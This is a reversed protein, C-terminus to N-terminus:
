IDHYRAESVLKIRNRRPDEYRGRGYAHPQLDHDALAAAASLGSLAQIHSAGLRSGPYIYTTRKRNQHAEDTERRSSGLLAGETNPACAEQVGVAPTARVHSPVRLM